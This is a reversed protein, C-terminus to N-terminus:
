FLSLEALLQNNEVKISQLVAKTLKQKVNDDKLRYIPKKSLFQSVALQAVKKVKPLLIPPINALELSVIKPNKFFFEYKKPDYSLSGTIKANGSGTIGGLAMIKIHSSVGIENNGVSLDIDPNSLVVTVFFKKKEMPMMASVKTQLEGASIELTYSFAMALQSCMLMAITLIFKKM